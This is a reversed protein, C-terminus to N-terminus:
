NSKGTRQEALDSLTRSHSCLSSSNYARYLMSTSFERLKDKSVRRMIPSNYFIANLRAETFTKQVAKKLRQIVIEETSDNPFQLKLLLVKQLIGSVNPRIKIENKHKTIFITSYKNRSLLNRINSLEYVLTDECNIM